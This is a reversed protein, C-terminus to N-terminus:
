FCPINCGPRSGRCPDWWDAVLHGEGERSGHYKQSNCIESEACSEELRIAGPGVVGVDAGCTLSAILLGGGGGCVCVSGHDKVPVAFKV